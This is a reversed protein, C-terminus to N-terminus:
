PAPEVRALALVREWEEPTNANFASLGPPDFPQAEAEDIERVRLRALLAGASWEGAALQQRILPLCTATYVAHLYETGRATRLATVDADPSQEALRTLHRVLAPSVFPMDCAVVFAHPSAIAAFAAELGSLPGLGPRLDPVLRVGPVLPALEPPGVVIVEPLARRLREVVRRLLPGGGIELAAKSTGMRASRGGALVVGVTQLPTPATM